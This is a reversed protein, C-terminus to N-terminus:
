GSIIVGKRIYTPDTLQTLLFAAVDARSIRPLGSLALREGSQVQGTRPGNTLTVPHVLTWSL